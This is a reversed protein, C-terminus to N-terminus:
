VMAGGLDGAIQGMPADRADTGQALHLLGRECPAVVPAGGEGVEDLPGVELVGSGLGEQDM